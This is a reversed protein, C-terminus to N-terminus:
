GIRGFGAQVGGKADQPRRSDVCGLAVPFLVASRPQWPRSISM